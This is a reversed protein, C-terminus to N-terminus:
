IEAKAKLSKTEILGEDSVFAGTCIEELFRMAANENKPLLSKNELIREKLALKM